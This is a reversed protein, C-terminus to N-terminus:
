HHMRGEAFAAVRGGVRVDGDTTHVKIRCPRGIEDGQRISVDIATGWLRRALVGIPGAASGTGPDEPIGALPIFVRVHLTRDDIRRFPCLSKGGAALAASSVAALDPRIGDIPASTPVLVHTMGGAESLWAGEIGPLQLAAAIGDPAVETLAPDPQTMEAGEADAEVTVTAGPSTQQWRGPGLVWATGLSPHGVFPLEGGPTFFRVDYSDDGTRTPFSTESLNVERAIPQMVDEPCPDLVVCVANGALPRESFVDVVRYAVTVLGGGTRTNTV